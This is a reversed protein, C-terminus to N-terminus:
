QICLYEIVETGDEARIRLRAADGSFQDTYSKFNFTLVNDAYTYNQIISYPTVSAVTVGPPYTVTVTEYVRYGYDHVTYPVSIATINVTYTNNDTITSYERYRYEFTVDENYGSGGYPSVAAFQLPATYGSLTETVAPGRIVATKNYAAQNAAILAVTNASYYLASGFQGSITFLHVGNTFFVNYHTNVYNNNNTVAMTRSLFAPDPTVAHARKFTYALSAFSTDSRLRRVAEVQFVTEVGATMSVTYPLYAGNVASSVDSVADFPVTVDYFGIKKTFIEDLVAPGNLGYQETDFNVTITGNAADAYSVAITYGTLDVKSGNDKIYFPRNLQIANVTAQDISVHLTYMFMTGKGPNTVTLGMNDYVHYSGQPNIQYGPALIVQPKVLKNQAVVIYPLTLFIQNGSILGYYDKTVAAANESQLVAFSLIKAGEDDGDPRDPLISSADCSVLYAALVFVVVKKM